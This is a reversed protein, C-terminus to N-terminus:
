LKNVKKRAEAGLEDRPHRKIVARYMERANKKDNLKVYCDGLRLLSRSYWHDYVSFVSRVRVYSSIADNLRDQEFFVEGLLFQAQAGLDDQRREGLEKFLDEANKYEGRIMELIGLEIKSKDAFISEDYFMIIENFTSYAGPIDGLEIQAMARQYLIEPIRTKESIRDLSNNYLDIAYLHNNDNSLIIGAEIVADSGYKSNIFKKTIDQFYGIAEEPKGIITLSKGVWYMADPIYTSNPYKEIFEKYGQEASEYNGLSYYIEGKKLYIDDAYDSSPNDSVFQEILSVADDPKDKAIYSYQIGNIADFVFQTNPYESILQIYNILASDYSGLNYYSDGISYIAIPKLSSNPYKEFIKKYQNIAESFDGKQFEIWGILYQSEDSYKSTPFERQLTEFKNIAESSKGAKFLAQAYQYYAFDNNLVLRNNSFIESYIDSSKNFEKLGYYCDALRLKADRHNKDDPYKNVYENFLYSANSFDKLNFYSYAKGYLTQKVLKEEDTGVRKYHKIANDYDDDEFYAEALYFNTRSKEFDPFRSELERLINITEEFDDMYYQTIGYGLIARNRINESLESIDLVNYFFVGANEFDEEQLSIEGLLVFSKGRIENNRSSTINILHREARSYRKNNYQIVGTNFQVEEALPDDPYEELFEEYIDLADDENGAYRKCEASWFFAKRGISDSGSEYLKTFIEFASDYEKLQFSVRALGYEVERKSRRSSNTNLLRSYTEEANEYEKLRFFSSALILQAENESEQPLITIAPDSLELIANDYEKLKFYCIGIRLQALPVLESEKYYSLLEDYYSVADDYREVEEYLSAIAYITYDIYQNSFKSSIAEELYEEGEDFMRQAVYSKGIWYYASGKYETDPYDNLLIFLKARCNRYERRDYYLTGLKYFAADRFNSSKYRHTFNELESVAGEMQKLQILCEASYYSATAILSVDFNGKHKVNQFLRHAEAYDNNDFFWKAENFDGATNQANLPTASLIALYSILIISIQKLM